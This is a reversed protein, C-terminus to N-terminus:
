IDTRCSFYLLFFFKISTKTIQFTLKFKIFANICKNLGNIRNQQDHENLWYAHSVMKKNGERWREKKNWDDQSKNPSILAMYHTRHELKAFFRMFSNDSDTYMNERRNQTSYSKTVSHAHPYKQRKWNINWRYRIASLSFFFVFWFM